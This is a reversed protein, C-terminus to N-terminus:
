PHSAEEEEVEQIAVEVLNRDEEVEVEEVLNRYAEELPQLFAEEEQLFVGEELFVAEV